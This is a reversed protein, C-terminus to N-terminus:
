QQSKPKNKRARKAKALQAAKKEQITIVRDEHSVFDHLEFKVILSAFYPYGQDAIAAAESDSLEIGGEHCYVWDKILGCETLKDLAREFHEKVTAVWSWRNAKIEEYAPFSTSKLLTEVRLKGETGRVVNNDQSCHICMAEGIAYANFDRDDLAYLSRPYQILPLSVLYEAMSQTFEIMLENAKLKYAGIYNLGGFTKPQRQIKETWSISALKLSDLSAKIKRRFNKMADTNETDVGNAAAFDKLDLIYKLKLRESPANCQNRKAFESVAYRYIKVAGAGIKLAAEPLFINVGKVIVMNSFPKIEGQTRALALAEVADGNFCKAVSKSKDIKQIMIKLADIDFGYHEHESDDLFEQLLERLSLCGEKPRISLTVKEKTFFDMFVRELYMNAARELVQLSVCEGFFGSFSKILSDQASQFHNLRYARIFDPNDADRQEVYGNFM